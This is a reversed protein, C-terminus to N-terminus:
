DDEREAEPDGGRAELRVAVMLEVAQSLAFVAAAALGGFPWAAAPPLLAGALMAAGLGLAVSVVDLATGLLVVERPATGPRRRFGRSVIAQLATFALAAGVAFGTIHLLEPSGALQNLAGYSATITISFGFAASNDVLATHLGVRAARGTHSAHRDDDM